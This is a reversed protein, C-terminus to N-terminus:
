HLISVLRNEAIFTGKRIVLPAKYRVLGSTKFGEPTSSIYEDMLSAKFKETTLFQYENNSNTKGNTQPYKNM